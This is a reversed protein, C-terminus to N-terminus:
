AIPARAIKMCTPHFEPDRWGGPGISESYLVSWAPWSGLIWSRWASFYGAGVSERIGRTRFLNPFKKVYCSNGVMRIQLELALVIRRLTGYTRKTLNVEWSSECDLKVSLVGDRLFFSDSWGVAAGIMVDRSARLLQGFGSHCELRVRSCSMKVALKIFTRHSKLLFQISSPNMYKPYSDAKVVTALLTLVNRLLVATSYRYM